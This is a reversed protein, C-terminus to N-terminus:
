YALSVPEGGAVDNFMEHWDLFRAPYARTDGNLSVGFVREGPELYDAEAPDIMRPNDLAPIGDVVVGGWVIEEVRSDPAVRVDGHLFRIFSPDIHAYLEAKWAPYGAFAEIEPHRGAWEVWEFWDPPLEQGTLANLAEGLQGRWRPQYRLTDILGAVFRTDGSAVIQDTIVEVEEDILSGYLLDDLLARHDLEEQGTPTAEVPSALTAVSFVVHFPQCYIVISEYQTPDVGAPIDYNQNGLNGKLKGLDVTEGLDARGTPSPNQALLVHLDPGNTVSFDEFRLVYAGEPLQYLTASGSGRHLNDADQFQGQRVMVPQDGAPMEEDIRQDPMSEASDLDESEGAQGEGEPPQALEDETPVATTSGAEREKETLQAVEEQGAAESPFAEDVTRDIFLPSALYWALAGGAVVAVIVGIVLLPRKKMIMDEM